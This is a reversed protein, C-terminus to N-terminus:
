RDGFIEKRAREIKEESLRRERESHERTEQQRREHEDYIIRSRTQTRTERLGLVPGFIFLLGAVLVAFLLYDQLRSM